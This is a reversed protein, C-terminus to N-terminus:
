QLRHRADRLFAEVASKRQELERIEEQMTAVRGSHAREMETQKANTDTVVKALAAAQGEAEQEQRKAEGIAAESRALAEKLHDQVGAIRLNL